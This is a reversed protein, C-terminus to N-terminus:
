GLKPKKSVIDDQDEDFRHANLRVLTSQIVETAARTVETIIEEVSKVQTVLGVGTGAYTTMRGGPGWGADGKYRGTEAYLRQNQERPMGAQDDEYSQNRIARADYVPPWGEIGRLEDYLGTRVTSQGGDRVRLIEEQYGKAIKIEKSALFRTGMVVGSAGLMMASAVGREDCIGGAALVPIRMGQKTLADIAEPVLSIVGAGQKLLHGGADSGQLVLVDPKVTMKAVSIADTVSGVQVWVRTKKNFIQRIQRAWPVLDQLQKPAYLWVAAVPYKELAVLALRLDSGWNQFGVGIPLVGGDDYFSYGKKSKPGAPAPAKDGAVSDDRQLLLDKATMLESELKSLNFGAGIFGFGGAKSAAVAAPATSINLM